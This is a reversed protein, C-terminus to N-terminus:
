HPVELSATLALKLYFFQLLSIADIDFDSRHKNKKKTVTRFNQWGGKFDLISHVTYPEILSRSISVGM